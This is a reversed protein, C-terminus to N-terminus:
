RAENIFKDKYKLKDYAKLLAEYDKYRVYDGNNSTYIINSVGGITEYALGQTSDNNIWYRSVNYFVEDM